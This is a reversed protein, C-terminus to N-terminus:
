LLLQARPAGHTTHQLAAAAPTDLAWESSAVVSVFYVSKPQDRGGERGGERGGVWGGLYQTQEAQQSVLPWGADESKEADGALERGHCTLRTRSASLRALVESPSSVIAPPLRSDEAGIDLARGHVQGVSRVIGSQGTPRDWGCTGGTAHCTVHTVPRDHSAWTDWGVMRGDM